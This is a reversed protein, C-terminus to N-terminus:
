YWIKNKSEWDLKKEQFKQWGEATFILGRRRKQKQRNM